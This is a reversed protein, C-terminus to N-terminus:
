KGGYYLASYTAEKIIGPACKELKRIGEFLVYVCWPKLCHETLMPELDFVNASDVDLKDVANALQKLQEPKIYSSTFKCREIADATTKAYLM